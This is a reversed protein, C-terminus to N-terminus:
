LHNQIQFNLNCDEVIWVRDELEFRSGGKVGM